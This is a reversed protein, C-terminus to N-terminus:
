ITIAQAAFAELSQGDARKPLHREGDEGYVIWAANEGAETLTDQDVSKAVADAFRQETIPWM